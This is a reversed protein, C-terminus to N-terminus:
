RGGGGNEGGGDMGIGWREGGMRAEGGGEIWGEWDGDRGGEVGLRGVEMGGLRGAERGGLGGGWGDGREM